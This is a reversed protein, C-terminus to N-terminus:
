KEALHAKLKMIVPVPSPDVGNLMAMYYSVWDGLYIASFMRALLSGGQLNIENVSKVNKKIIDKLADFRISVRPHDEADRLLVVSFNKTVKKPYGWGNIENHNMEPLVHGFAVNKANEQIQGRWRLNVADMRESASYVVPATGHLKKALRLAPNKGNPNAYVESLKDLTEITETVAKKTLSAANKTVSPHRMVTYLLPFFSYGLACRPQFGKPIVILPVQQKTAQASIKGGTSIVLLNKTRKRAEAYASLTEETDGSYSSAVVLTSDNVIGPVNYGRSVSINLSNAGKTAACYSRVLDGGIASGGLGLVVIDNSQPTSTFFPADEGIAVAHRVQEPFTLLVNYMDAKDPLFLSDNAAM